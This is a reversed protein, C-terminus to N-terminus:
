LISLARSGTEGDSLRCPESERLASFRTCVLNEQQQPGVLFRVEASPKPSRREVMLSHVRLSTKMGLTYNERYPGQEGLSGFVTGTPLADYRM